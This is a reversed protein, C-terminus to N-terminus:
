DQWAVPTPRYSTRRPGSSCSGTSRRTTSRSRAIPSRSRWYSRGAKVTPPSATSSIRWADSATCTSSSTFARLGDATMTMRSASVPLARAVRTRCSAAGDQSEVRVSGATSRRGGGPGPARSGEYVVDGIQLGSSRGSTTPKRAQPGHDWPVDPSSRPPPESHGCSRAIQVRAARLEAAHKKVRSVGTTSATQTDPPACRPRRGWCPRIPPRPPAPDGSVRM